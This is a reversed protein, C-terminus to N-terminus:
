RSEAERLAEPSIWTVGDRTGLWLAGERDRAFAKVEDDSLGTRDTVVRIGRPTVIAVGDYESGFWTAGDGEYVSRVKDGALGDARLMTREVTWADDRRVFRCAGGRDFFGTGVWVSGDRMELISTINNHPLGENMTFYQWRGDRLVSLGGNPAVYSGFWLGGSSDERIANVQDALLGDAATMARWNAGDFVAAGGCTGAWVRGDRAVLVANVCAAPLGDAETYTRAENGDLVTLGQQHGIWLRSGRDLALARVGTLERVADPPPSVARTRRDIRVLGDQGGAWIWEGQEVLASVEHPPRVIEWGAPRVPAAAERPHIARELGVLAIAVLLVLGPIWWRHPRPDPLDQPSPERM